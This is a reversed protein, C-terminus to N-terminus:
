TKKSNKLQNGKIKLYYDFEPDVILLELDMDNFEVIYGRDKLEIVDWMQVDGHILKLYSIPVRIHSKGNLDNDVAESSITLPQLVALNSEEVLMYVTFDPIIFSVIDGYKFKLKNSM